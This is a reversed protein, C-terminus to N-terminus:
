NDAVDKHGKGPVAVQLQGFHLDVAIPWQYEDNEGRPAYCEEFVAKHDGGVAYTALDVSTRERQHLELYQGLADREGDEGDDHGGDELALGDAPVVEDAEGEDQEGDDEGEPFIFLGVLRFASLPFRFVSLPFRFVADAM